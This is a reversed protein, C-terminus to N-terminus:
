PVQIRVEFDSHWFKSCPGPGPVRSVDPYVQEIVGTCLVAGEKGVITFRAGLTVGQNSGASLTMWNITREIPYASVFRGAANSARPAPGADPVTGAVPSAGADPVTPAAPPADAAHLTTGLAAIAAALSVLARGGDPQM